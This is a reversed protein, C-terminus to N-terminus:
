ITNPKNQEFNYRTLKGKFGNLNIYKDGEDDNNIISLHFEDILPLFLEYISAGGVVWINPEPAELKNVTIDMVIERQLQIAENIAGWPTNYDTGIVVCKRGPLGKGGFDNEFTKRGVILIGGMTTEKFHKFDASSRWMMKGDKGIFDRNNCACIAKLM